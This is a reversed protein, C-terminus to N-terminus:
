RSLDIGKYLGNPLTYAEVGRFKVLQAVKDDPISM